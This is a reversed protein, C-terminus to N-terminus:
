KNYSNKSVKLFYKTNRLLLCYHILPHINM